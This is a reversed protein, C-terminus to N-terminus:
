QVPGVCQHSDPSHDLCHQPANLQELDGHVVGGTTASGSPSEVQQEAVPVVMPAGCCPDVGIMSDLGFGESVLVTTLTTDSQGHAVIVGDRMVVLDDAYRAAQNLDHLVAVVT